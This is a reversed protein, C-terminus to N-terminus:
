GNPWRIHWTRSVMLGLFVVASAAAIWNIQETYFGAIVLVALMDDAIALATLLVKLGIPVRNGFLALLGLAFAIDTAMPVGWGRSAVGEPNFVLYFLAPVLAGGIAAIVCKFGGTDLPELTAITKEMHNSM